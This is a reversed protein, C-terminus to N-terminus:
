VDDSSRAIGARKGVAVLDEVGDVEYEAEAVHVIRATYQEFHGADELWSSPHHDSAQWARQRPEAAAREFDEGSVTASQGGASMTITTDKLASEM